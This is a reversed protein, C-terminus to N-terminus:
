LIETKESEKDGDLDVLVGRKLSQKFKKYIEILDEEIKVKLENCITQFFAQFLDPNVVLYALELNNQYNYNIIERLVEQTTITKMENCQNKIEIIQETLFRFFGQELKNVKKSSTDGFNIDFYPTNEWKKKLLNAYNRNVFLSLLLIIAFELFGIFFITELPFKLLLLLLVSTMVFVLGVIVIISYSTEYIKRIRTERDKEELMKKM